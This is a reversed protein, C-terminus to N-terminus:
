VEQYHWEKEPNNKTNESVSNLFSVSLKDGDFICTIRDGHIAEVFRADLQLTNENLWAATGAIKSPVFVPLLGISVVGTGTTKIFKRRNIFM